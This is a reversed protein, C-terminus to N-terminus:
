DTVDFHDKFWQNIHKGAEELIPNNDCKRFERVMMSNIQGYEKFNKKTTKIYEKRQDEINQIARSYKKNNDKFKEKAVEKLQECEENKKEVMYEILKENFRQWKDLSIIQLVAWEYLLQNDEKTKM